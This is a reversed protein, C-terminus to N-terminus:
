LKFKKKEYVVVADVLRNLKIGEKSKPGVDKKMLKEIQKMIRNYQKMSKIIMQWEMEKIHLRWYNYM